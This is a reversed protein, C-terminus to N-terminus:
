IRKGRRNGSNHESNETENKISNLYIIISQKIFFAYPMNNIHDVIIPIDETNINFPAYVIKGSQERGICRYLNEAFLHEVISPASLHLRKAFEAVDFPFINGDLDKIDVKSFDFMKQM